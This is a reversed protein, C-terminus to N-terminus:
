AVLRNNMEELTRQLQDVENVNKGKLYEFQQMLKDYQGQQVGIQQKIQKLENLLRKNTASEENLRADLERNKHEAETLLRDLHTKDSLAQQLAESTQELRGSVERMKSALQNRGEQAKSHEKKTM